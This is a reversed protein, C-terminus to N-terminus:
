AVGTGNSVVIWNDDWLAGGAVLRIRMDVVDAEFNGEFPSVASGGVYNGGDNKVRLEATDYGRLKLLELVPRGKTTGPKPAMKWADGTLTETEIITINPFLNTPRPKLRLNGDQEDIVAFFREIQWELFIKKGVPVFVNFGSLTGIKRGQIKREALAMTAAIIAEPSVKANAPVVTEDPLTVSPLAKTALALAGYIEAYYTDVVTRLLEQPLGEIFSVTDSLRAEWTWAVRVGRKSLRQYYGEIDSKVTVMPYPTGEPVVPLSGDDGLVSGEPGESSILSALVVPNFDRVTRTGAINGIEKEEAALQPIYQISLLRAVNFIADSTTVAERLRADAIIDGDLAKEMLAQVAKVKAPTVGNIPRLRGDLSFPEKYKELLQLSV